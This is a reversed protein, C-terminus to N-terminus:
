SKSGGDEVLGREHAQKYALHCVISAMDKFVERDVLVCKSKVRNPDQKEPDLEDIMFDIVAEETKIYPVDETRIYPAGEKTSDTIEVPEVTVTKNNEM